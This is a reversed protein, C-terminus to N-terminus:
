SPDPTINIQARLLASEAPCESALVDSMTAFLAGTDAYAQPEVRARECLWATFDTLISPDELLVTATLFRLTADIERRWWDVSAVMGAARDRAQAELCREVLSQRALILSEVAPVPPPPISVRRPRHSCWRDIM